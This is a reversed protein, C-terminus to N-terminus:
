STLYYTLQIGLIFKIIINNHLIFIICQEGYLFKTAKKKNENESITIEKKGIIRADTDVSTLVEKCVENRIVKDVGTVIPQIKV